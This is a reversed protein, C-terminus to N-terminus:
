SNDPQILPEAAADIHTNALPYNSTDEPMLEKKKCLYDLNKLYLLSFYLILLLFISKQSLPSFYIPM